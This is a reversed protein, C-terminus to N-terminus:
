EDQGIHELGEPTIYFSKGDKECFGKGINQNLCDSPNSLKSQHNDKLAKSVDSTTLSKQGKLSLWHATALFREVQNGSGGHKKIHSALSAVPGGAGPNPSTASHEAAPTAAAAASASQNLIFELKESVWAEDGEAAFELQGIKFSVSAM